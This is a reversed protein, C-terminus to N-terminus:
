PRHTFTAWYARDTAYIDIPDNPGLTKPLIGFRQMERIYHENPRFGPMDFRKHRALQDAATVITALIAQYDRDATNAFVDKGCLGLGGSHESLPAQLLLSKGPRTLNCLSQHPPAEGYEYTGCRRLTITPQVVRSNLPQPPGAAGFQYHDVEVPWGCDVNLERFRKPYLKDLDVERGHCAGCRRAFVIEEVDAMPSGLFESLLPGPAYGGAPESTEAACAQCFFVSCAIAVAIWRM